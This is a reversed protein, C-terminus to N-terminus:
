SDSRKELAEMTTKTIENVYAEYAVRIANAIAKKDSSGHSIITTNQLGLLPAGGYESYDMMSKVQKLNNKVLLAGLKGKFNSLMADKVLTFLGKALGETYKLIINGVFGDCVLVDAVGSTIDRGEVNGIFNLDSNKLIKYAEIITPTGKIEEEGINILGVKPNKVRQVKEMYISGMLAYDVLNIASAEPNAGGDLVLSMGNLTPMPFAIAPRDIGRIRGYTLLSTAMAAGTSGAGVLGAAKKEKVLNAAVVISADKKQRMARVPHEDFGIVESAHVIEMDEKAASLIPRIEKEDGVLISDIGWLKRALLAGEVVALPANDGGMADLAIKM